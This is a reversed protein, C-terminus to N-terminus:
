NKFQVIYHGGEAAGLKSLVSPKLTVRSSMALNELPLTFGEVQLMFLMIVEMTGNAVFDNEVRTHYVPDWTVNLDMLLGTFALRLDSKKAGANIWLKFGGSYPSDFTLMKEHGGGAKPAWTPIDFIGKTDGTINGKGADKIRDLKPLDRAVTDFLFDADKPFRNIEPWAFKKAGENDMFARFAELEQGRKRAWLNGTKYAMENLRPILAEPVIAAYDALSVAAPLGAVFVSENVSVSPFVFALEGRIQFRTSTVAGISRPIMTAGVKGGAGSAIPIVARPAQFWARFEEQMAAAKADVRARLGPLFTDPEKLYIALGALVKEKFGDFGTCPFEGITWAEDLSDVTLWPVSVEPLGDVGVTTKLMMILRGKGAKLTIPIDTCAGQVRVRVLVGNIIREVIADVSVRRITLRVDLQDSVATQEAGLIISGPKMRYDVEGSVGAMQVPLEDQLTGDPLSVIERGALRTAFDFEPANFISQSMQFIYEGRVSGDARAAEPAGIVLASAILLKFICVGM